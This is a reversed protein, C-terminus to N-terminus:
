AVDERARAAARSAKYIPGYVEYDRVVCGAFGHDSAIQSCRSCAICCKKPDMAGTTIIDHAADPYAFGLRGQGIFGTTHANLYAATVQPFFQRLWSMENIVLPVDGATDQLEGTVRLCLEIIKLQSETPAPNGVCVNDLPQGWMGYDYYPNSICTSLLTAGADILQKTLLKPETADWAFQNERDVGFGYPYPHVDFAGFRSAVIFDPSTAQRVAKVTQLLFRTRNEFAEGGYCGERTYAGLLESLLYKNAAKIDVGDFGAQEACQASEVFHGTLEDLYTDSVVQEDRTVGSGPDLLPDRFAVMPAPTDVPRSYRGSHTLQMINLPEHGAHDRAAQKCEEILNAFAGVTDRTIMLSTPSPRGEEVVANGEWWVLGSGGAATRLYRRRTLEAPTGDPHADCGEMPLIALANPAEHTDVRVPKTLISSDSALPINLGEAAIEDQLEARTHYHFRKFGSESM